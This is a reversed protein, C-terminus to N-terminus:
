DAPTWRHKGTVQSVPSALKNAGYGDYRWQDTRM